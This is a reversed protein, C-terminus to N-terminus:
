ISQTNRIESNTEKERILGTVVITAIIVFFSILISTIKDGIEFCKCIFFIDYLEYLAVVISTLVLGTSILFLFNSTRSNEREIRYYLTLLVVTGILYVFMLYDTWSFNRNHGAAATLFNGFLLLPIALMLTFRYIISSIKYLLKM